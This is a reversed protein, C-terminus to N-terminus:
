WKAIYQIIKIITYSFIVLLLWIISYKIWTKWKEAMSEDAWAFIFFLGSVVLSIAIITWIFLTSGLFIDQIFWTSDAEEWDRIWLTQYTQFTCKWNVLSEWDCNIGNTTEPMNKILKLNIFNYVFVKKKGAFIIM